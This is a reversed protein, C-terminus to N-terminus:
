CILIQGGGDLLRQLEAESSITTAFLEEADEATMEGIVFLSAHTAAEAWKIADQWGNPHEKRLPRIAEAADNSAKLYDMAAPFHTHPKLVVLIRGEGAVMNAASAVAAAVDEFHASAASVVVTDPVESLSRSSAEDRRRSAEERSDTMGALVELIQNEPGQLVRVFFPTGILWMSENWDVKGASKQYEADCLGPVLLSEGPADGPRHGCLVIVFDAEHATRNLYIREDTKTTALYGLKKRDYPHHLETKVDAFEDPLDDIWKQPSAPDPSILTVADAQIGASDIHDLIGAIMDALQPLREDLVIAIHDDPTLARRLPEFHWPADLAAAVLERPSADPEDAAPLAIANM